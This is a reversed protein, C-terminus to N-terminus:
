LPLHRINISLRYRVDANQMFSCSIKCACVIGAFKGCFDISIFSKHNEMCAIDFLSDGYLGAIEEGVDLHVRFNWVEGADVDLSNGICFLRFFGVANFVKESVIERAEAAVVLFEDFLMQTIGLGGAFCPYFPFDNGGEDDVCFSVDCVQADHSWDARFQIRFCETDDREQWLAFWGPVASFWNRETIGDPYIKFKLSGTM